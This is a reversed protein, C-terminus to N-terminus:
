RVPAPGLGLATGIARDLDAQSFPKRLIDACGSVLEAMVPDLENYGSMLIVSLRPFIQRVERALTVGSMGRPLVVDSLLLDFGREALRELAVLGDEAATVDHGGCRLMAQVANRVRPDDEVLLIRLCPLRTGPAVTAPAADSGQHVAAKPLWVTVTTGEGPESELQFRGGSQRIFGTVMSLGLGTGRGVGKTTFFPECAQELIEPGMGRGSDAVRIRCLGAKDEVALSIVIRGGSPMSDRANLLLNLLANQLQTRDALVPPLDGEQEVTCAVQAGLTPAALRLTQAVVEALALVQPRLPQKRAFSLLDSTLTAGREAALGIEGVFTRLDADGLAAQLLDVNARIVMLLNNFEHAIGGTLQGLAQMRQSQRLQEAAQNRETVDRIFLTHCRVGNSNWRSTSVEADFSAGAADVAKMGTLGEGFAATDGADPLLLSIHSGLLDNLGRGFKREAAPNVWQIWGAGDVTVFSDQAAEIIAHHRANRQERLKRERDVSASEDFVQILCGTTGDIQIPRVVISQAVPEDVVGDHRLLPFLNANVSHSIFASLGTAIADEVASALRGEAIGPFLRDLRAGLAVRRPVGSHRSMWINWHAVEANRDLIVVGMDLGELCRLLAAPSPTKM